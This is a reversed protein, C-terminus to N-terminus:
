GGGSGPRGASGGSAGAPVWDGAVFRGFADRCGAGAGGPRGDAGATGSQPGTFETPVSFDALGCCVPRTCSSGTIPGQSDQGGAGGGGAGSGRGPEGSPQRNAFTPCTPAGGRGGSVDVGECTNRGGEGGAVVNEPGRICANAADEVAGRPPEGPAAAEPEAGPEGDVGNMGNGPVGARLELESMRLRPGPDVLVAGFAAASPMRADRGQLTIWEVVTDTGGVGEATLAAGGPSPADSPARVEVRFGTPELALYDRRYGGHLKVGDRLELSEAYAGSAVFVHPRPADTELSEAARDIAVQITRLPRTPSGPGADNGDPAVYFSELVIGDAGDCNVDLDEGVAGVPGPADSLASVTCECGTAIDRDADIRDGPMIGDAADPCALVCTPAFPDGGCVLDGEPITSETCDVGCEGCNRIDVSYAGRADVFGEDVTGDCDDDSANCVEEFAGCASLVGDECRAQGPCRAGMGDDLACALDFTQGPECACSGGAPICRDEMCAYGDPCGFACTVVCRREGGVEDCAAIALDGCDGDDTCALCLRDFIPVCRGTPSPAFGEECRTAVCLASEEVVACEAELARGSPACPLGCGGCHDPHVYRGAEDRFGEDVRGDLDEDVGSCVEEGPEPGDLVDADVFPNLGTRGGCGALVLSAFLLAAGPRM